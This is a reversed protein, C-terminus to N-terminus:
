FSLEIGIIHTNKIERMSYAYDIIMKGAKLGFGIGAYGKYKSESTLTGNKYVENQLLYSYGTRIDMIKYITIELGIGIKRQNTIALPQTFDLYISSGGQIGPIDYQYAIGFKMDMPLSASRTTKGQTTTKFLSPGLNRFVIATKTPFYTPQEATKQYIFGADGCFGWAIDEEIRDWIYRFTLGAGSGKLAEYTITLNLAIDSATFNGILEGDENYMGFDGCSLGFVRLGIISKGRRFAFGAEGFNMDVLWKQYSVYFSATNVYILGVPNIYLDKLGYPDASNAEGLSVSRASPNLKLFTAEEIGFLSGFIIFLYLIKKM